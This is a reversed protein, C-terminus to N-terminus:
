NLLIVPYSIGQQLKSMSQGLKKKNENEPSLPVVTESQVCKDSRKLSHSNENEFQGNFLWNCLTSRQDVHAQLLHLYMNYNKKQADRQRQVHNLNDATKQPLFSYDRCLLPVGRICMQRRVSLLLTTEKCFIILKSTGFNSFFIWTKRFMQLVTESLRTRWRGGGGKGKGGVWGYKEPRM